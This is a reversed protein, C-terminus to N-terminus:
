RLSGGVGVPRDDGKGRLELLLKELAEVAARYFVIQAAAWEPSNICKELLEQYEADHIPIM